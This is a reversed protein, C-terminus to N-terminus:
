GTGQWDPAESPIFVTFTSGVGPESEVFINGGHHEIIGFSVSLGLGTGKGPDKTTFFPDFIKSLHEASIGGGQDRVIGRVGDGDSITSLWITGGKPMAQVANQVLNVFVQMLQNENAVVHPLAPDFDTEITVEKAGRDTSVLFWAKQLVDALNVLRFEGEAAPRSFDLLSRVITRCRDAATEIEDLNDGLEELDGLQIASRCLQTFSIIVGIPNNIEHAVGGALQGVGAMKESQLVQRALRREESVDRYYCTFRRRGREEAHEFASVQFTRDKSGDEVDLTTPEMPEPSKVAAPLGCGICPDSRSFLAEHCVSGPLARVDKGAYEAAAKNARRISLDENLMTVPDLIADLTEEWEKKAREILRSQRVDLAALEGTIEDTIEMTAHDTRSQADAGTLTLHRQHAAKVVTELRSDRWPKILVFDVTGDNLGARAENMTGYDTLIVNQVAPQALRIKRLLDLGSGEFRQDVLVAFPSNGAVWELADASTTALKVEMGSGGLSGELAVLLEEVEDVCLVKLSM